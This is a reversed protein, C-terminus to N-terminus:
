GFVKHLQGIKQHMQENTMPEAQVANEETEKQGIWSPPMFLRKAMQLRKWLSDEGNKETGRLLTEYLMAAITALLEQEDGWPQLRYSANWQHFM